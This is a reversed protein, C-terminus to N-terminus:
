APHRPRLLHAPVPKSVHLPRSALSMQSNFISLPPPGAPTPAPSPSNPNPPPPQSNHSDHSSHSFEPRVAPAEAKVSTEAKAPAEEKASAESSLALISVSSRDPSPTTKESARSPTGSSPCASPASPSSALKNATDELEKLAKRRRDRAKGIQGALAPTVADSGPTINRELRRCLTHHLLVDEVRLVLFPNEPIQRETFVRQFSQILKAATQREEPGMWPESQALDTLTM